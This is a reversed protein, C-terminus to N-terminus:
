VGEPGAREALPGGVLRKLTPLDGAVAANIFERAVAESARKQPEQAMYSQFSGDLDQARTLTASSSLLLTGAALCWALKQLSAWKPKKLDMTTRRGIDHSIM